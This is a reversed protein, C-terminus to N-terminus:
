WSHRYPNNDAYLYWDGEIRKLVITYRKNGSPSFADLSPALSWETKPETPDIMYIAGEYNPFNATPPLWAYGKSMGPLFQTWPPQLYTPFRYATQGRDTVYFKKVGLSKKLDSYEGYGPGFVKAKTKVLYTRLKEFDAKRERFKAIMEGDSPGGARAVPVPAFAFVLALVALFRSM